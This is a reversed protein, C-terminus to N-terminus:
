NFLSTYVELYSENEEREREKLCSTSLTDNTVIVDCYSLLLCCEFQNTYQTLNQKLNKTIHVNNLVRRQKMTLHSLTEKNDLNKNENEGKM